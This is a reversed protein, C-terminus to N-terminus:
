IASSWRSLVARRNKGDLDALDLQLGDYHDRRQRELESTCPHFPGRLLDAWRRPHDEAQHDGVADIPEHLLRRLAAFILVTAASIPLCKMSSYVWAAPMAWWPRRCSRAQTTGSGSSLDGM